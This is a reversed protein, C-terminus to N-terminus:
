LAIDLVNAEAKVEVEKDTTNGSAYKQPFPLEFKPGAPTKGPLARGATPGGKAMLDMMAKQAAAPPQSLTVKYTGPQAGPRGDASQLTYKGDAGITGSAPTGSDGVPTFAITVGELSGSGGSVTGTVEYVDPKKPGSSCGLAAFIGAVVM